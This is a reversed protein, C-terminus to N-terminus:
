IRPRNQVFCITVPVIRLNLQAIYLANWVDKHWSQDSAANAPVFINSVSQVKRIFTLRFHLLPVYFWFDRNFRFRKFCSVTVHAQCLLGTYTITILTIFNTGMIQVQCTGSDFRRRCIDYSLSRPEGWYTWARNSKVRFYAVVGEKLVCDILIM